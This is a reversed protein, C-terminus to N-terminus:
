RGKTEQLEQAQATWRPTVYDAVFSVGRPGERRRITGMNRRGKTHPTPAARVPRGGTLTVKEETSAETTGTGAYASRNGAHFDSVRRIALGIYQQQAIVSGRKSQGAGKSKYGRSGAYVPLAMALSIILIITTKM